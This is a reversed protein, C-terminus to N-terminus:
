KKTHKTWLDCDEAWDGTWQAGRTSKGWPNRCLLIIDTYGNALTVARGDLITYTHGYRIGMGEITAWRAGDEDLLRAQAAPLPPTTATTVWGKRNAGDLLKWLKDLREGQESSSRRLDKTFAEIPYTHSPGGALACFAEEVHGGEAAEYSGCVKAWAKEVLMMWLENDGKSSKAFALKLNGKGCKSTKFPLFDDVVVTM